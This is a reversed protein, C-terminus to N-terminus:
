ENRMAHYILTHIQERYAMKNLKNNRMTPYTRNSLFIYVLNHEPDNWVCTGTFGTHGYTLASSEESTYTRKRSNLEKMDFGLGRRSSGPVRRAFEGVTGKKLYRTGGYYGDNMLMQMVVALDGANSFLGAHGGVGGMMAAGEDHVHGQIRQKRFDYDEETPIIQDKAFRDLPKYGLRTLGLPKYFSTNCFSDITMGSQREVIEKIFYFGLDSYRYKGYSRVDSRIIHNWMSDIHATRLYLQDAVPIGFGPDSHKRYFTPAPYRNRASGSVTEEYFPLGSRLGAQHAMVDRIVLREKNTGALEPLYHGLSHHVNFQGADSLRMAALTSAVAKTVSALDYLDTREVLRKQQYTHYGYAEDYIVKGDRAILIQCGPAARDNIMGLVIEKIKDLSDSSMGVREPMAYSLRGNSRIQLGHNLPYKGTATVPLRGRLSVAGFVAQAAIDQIMPEDDYAVIINRQDEFKRLSYPSGFIVLIVDTERELKQLFAVTSPLVGFERQALKDMGALGVIVLDERKLLNLLKESRSQLQQQSVATQKIDAYSQLRNQFSNNEPAGIMLSAITRDALNGVPLLDDDNAVATLAQEILEGKLAIAGPSIAGPNAGPLRREMHLAHKYRLIKKVSSALRKESIRGNGVAEVLAYFAKDVRRPLVIVDNGALFARLEAEGADFHATVGEMEMADTFIIGDFGLDNQLLSTVVPKSLSTPMHQRPDLAPVHLHAVMISQLGKDILAKFPYFELSDLRKRDHSIVPLDVHSDTDTDGHGPFHKACAMVGGSQLGRMYQFAKATVDYRDEGFSRDNIVPNLPNNNIDVVPAFNVHIGVGLLQDAIVLGMRYLLSNDQVAGLMMQRPFSFGADKFRMGGGWEADMAIMLPIRSREQYQQILGAHGQPTGQFFCLGGVHFKEIQNRVGTIHREGLDSHARIMLLQGVREETTMQAYVSDAWRESVSPVQTFATALAGICLMVTLEMKSLM